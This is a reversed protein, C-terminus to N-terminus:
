YPFLESIRGNEQIFYQVIIDVSTERFDSINTITHIKPFTCCLLDNEGLTVNSILMESIERIYSGIEEDSSPKMWRIIQPMVFRIKKVNASVRVRKVMCITNPVNEGPITKFYSITDPLEYSGTVLKIPENNMVLSWMYDLRTQVADYLKTKSDTPQNLNLFKSVSLDETDTIGMVSCFDPIDHMKHISVCISVIRSIM